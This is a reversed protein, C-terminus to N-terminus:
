AAREPKPTRKGYKAEIARRILESMPAGTRESEAMLANYQEARIILHIRQSTEKTM